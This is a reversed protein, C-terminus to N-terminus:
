FPICANVIDSTQRQLLFIICQVIQNVMLCLCRSSDLAVKEFKEVM